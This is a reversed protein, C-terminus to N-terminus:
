KKLMPESCVAISMLPGSFRSIRGGTTFVTMM